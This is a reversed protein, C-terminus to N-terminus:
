KQLMSQHSTTVPQSPIKMNDEDVFLHMDPVAILKLGAAKVFSAPAKFSKSKQKGNPARQVKLAPQVIM